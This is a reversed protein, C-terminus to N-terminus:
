DEGDLLTELVQRLEALTFPKALLVSAGCGAMRQFDQNGSTLVFPLRPFRDRVHQALENGAMRPMELDSFILDVPTAAPAFPAIAQNYGARDLIQWASLGDFACVISDNPRLQRLLRWEGRIVDMDDDVLLILRM